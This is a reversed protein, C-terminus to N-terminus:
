NVSPSYYEKTAISRRQLRPQLYARQFRYKASKILQLDNIRFPFLLKTVALEKTKFIKYTLRKSDFIQCFFRRLEIIEFSRHPVWDSVSYYSDDFRYVQLDQLQVLVKELLIPGSFFIRVRM